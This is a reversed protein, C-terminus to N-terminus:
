FGSMTLHPSDVYKSTIWLYSTVLTLRRKTLALKFVYRKADTILCGSVATPCGEPKYILVGNAYRKTLQVVAAQKNM